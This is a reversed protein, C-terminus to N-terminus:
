KKGKIDFSFNFSITVEKKFFSVMKEFSLSFTKEKPKRRKLVLEVGRNTYSTKSKNISGM